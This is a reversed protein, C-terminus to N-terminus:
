NRINMPNSQSAWDIWTTLGELELRFTQTALRAKGDAISKFRTVPNMFPRLIRFYCSDDSLYDDFDAQTPGGDKIIKYRYVDLDGNESLSGMGISADGFLLSLSSFDRVPIGEHSLGSFERHSCLICPQIRIRATDAVKTGPFWGALYSQRKQRETLVSTAFALQEAGREIDEWIDRMEHTDAGPVSHKCEILYLTSGEFLVVDVDTAKKGLQLRQNKKVKQFKTKLTSTVMEVFADANARFRLKNSTQLNRLINSLLVLGPPGVMEAPSELEEAGRVFRNPAIRLFPRYQLDFYGLDQVDASILQFFETTQEKSFGLSEILSFIEEEKYVRVLSNLVARPNSEARQWLVIVDIASMLRFFQWIKHFTGINLHETLQFEEAELDLPLLFDQSLTERYQVDELFTTGILKQYAEPIIPINLPIREFLSGADVVNALKEGFTDAFMRAAFIISASPPLEQNRLLASINSRGIEARMLGLRLAYEFEESPPSLHFLGSEKESLGYGFLSILKATELQTVLTIGYTVVSRFEDSLIEEGFPLAFDLSDLTHIDNAAAVLISAVSAMDESSDFQNLFVSLDLGFPFSLKERLFHLHTLAIAAKVVFRPRERLVAQGKALSPALIGQFHHFVIYTELRDRLLGIDVHDADDLESHFQVLFRRFKRVFSETPLLLGEREVKAAFKKGILVTGVFICARLRGFQGRNRYKHSLIILTKPFARRGIESAIDHPLEARVLAATLKPETCIRQVFSELANGENM